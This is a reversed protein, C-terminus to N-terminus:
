CLSYILVKKLQENNSSPLYFKFTYLMIKFKPWFALNRFKGTISYDNQLFVRVLSIWTRSRGADQRKINAAKPFSWELIKM